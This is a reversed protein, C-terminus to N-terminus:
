LRGRPVSAAKNKENASQTTPRSRCRNRAPPISERTNAPNDELMPSVSSIRRARLLLGEGCNCDNGHADTGRGGVHGLGCDAGCEDAAGGVSTGVDCGLRQGAVTVDVHTRNDEGGGAAGCGAAERM